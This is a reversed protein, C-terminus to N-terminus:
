NGGQTGRDDHANLLELRIADAWSSEGDRRQDMSELTEEEEIILDVDRVGGVELELDQLVLMVM